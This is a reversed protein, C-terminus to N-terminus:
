PRPVLLDGSSFSADEAEGAVARRCCNALWFAAGLLDRLCCCCARGLEAVGAVVQSACLLLTTASSELGALKM